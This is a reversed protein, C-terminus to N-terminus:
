IPSFASKSQRFKAGETNASFAWFKEYQENTFYFKAFSM